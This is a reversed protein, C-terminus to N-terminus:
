SIQASGGVQKVVPFKSHYDIVCLYHKYNSTFTDTGVSEWLRRPIERSMMKGKLWAAQCDQCTCYHKKDNGGLWCEHQDLVHVWTGAAKDKRNGQPGLASTKTDQRATSCTNSKKKRENCHWRHNYDCIQIVLIVATIETGWSQNISLRPTNSIIAHMHAWWRANGDKKKQQWVTQLTWAHCLKVSQICMGSIKQRQKGWPQTQIALRDHIATAKHQLPTNKVTNKSFQTIPKCCREKIDSGAAQSRYNHKGQPWFLIGIAEYEINSYNTKVSTLYKGTFVIPQLAASKTAKNRPVWM